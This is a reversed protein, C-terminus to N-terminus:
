DLQGHGSERTRKKVAQGSVPAAATAGAGEAGLERQEDGGGVVVTEERKERRGGWVREREESHQQGGSRTTAPPHDAVLVWDWDPNSTPFTDLVSYLSTFV